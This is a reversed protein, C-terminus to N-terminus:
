KKEETLRVHCGKGSKGQLNNDDEGDEVVVSARGRGRLPEYNRQTGEGRGYTWKGSFFARQANIM